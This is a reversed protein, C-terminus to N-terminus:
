VLAEEARDQRDAVPHDDGQPQGSACLIVFIVAPLVPVRWTFDLASCVLFAAASAGAAIRDEGARARWWGRAILLLAVLVSVSGVIGTESLAQLFENHAFETTVVTDGKPAVLKYTGPGTGAFLHEPARELTASWVRSRDMSGTDLRVHFAGVASGLVFALIGLAVFRRLTGIRNWGLVAAAVGGALLAGRSQTAVLGVAIAVVAGRRWPQATRARILAVPLAIALFAGAANQYTLTSALRWTTAARLALPSIHFAVAALGSVAIATAVIVVADLVEDRRARAALATCTAVFALTAFPKLAAGPFGTAVWSVTLGAALVAVAAGLHRPPRAGVVMACVTAGLLVALLQRTYFAGQLVTAAALVAALGTSAVSRKM